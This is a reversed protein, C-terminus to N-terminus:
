SVYEEAPNIRNYIAWLREHHGEPDPVAATGQEIADATMKEMFTCFEAENLRGDGDADSETFWQAVKATEQTAYEEDTAFRENQEKGKAIMEPTSNAKWHDVAIVCEARLADKIEQSLGEEAM